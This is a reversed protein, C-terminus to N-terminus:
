TLVAMDNVSPTELMGWLFSVLMCLCYRRGVLCCIPNKLVTADAKMCAGRAYRPMPNDERGTVRSIRCRRMSQPWKRSFEIVVACKSAVSLPKWIDEPSVRGTNWYSKLESWAQHLGPHISVHQSIRVVWRMVSSHLEKWAGGRRLGLSWPM